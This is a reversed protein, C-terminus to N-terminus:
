QSMGRALIKWEDVVKGKEVVYYKDYLNVTPGVFYPIMQIKDGITFMSTDKMRIQNHEVHFNSFVAEPYGELLPLGRAINMGKLGVDTVIKGPYPTSVVTGLVTLAYDLGVGGLKHIQDMLVYSGAQVETVGPYAGTINWTTAGGSSVIEVDMGSKRILDRSEILSKLSNFVIKKRTEFDYHKTVTGEYGMIGRLILGEAQTAEKALKVADEGPLVGCRDMIGPLKGFESLNIDVLVGIEVGYEKAFSSLLELNLPNDIAVKVDAFQNVRALREIKNRGVVQNAVLIDKIGTSAMLEAESLKATCIGEAGAELQMHAIHPTKHHKVHPRVNSEKDKFFSHVTEINKKMQDLDILLAPTDIDQIDM